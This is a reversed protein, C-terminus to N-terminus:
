SIKQQMKHAIHIQMKNHAKTIAFFMATIFFKGNDQKKKGRVIKDFIECTISQKCCILLFRVLINNTSSFLYKRLSNEKLSQVPHVFIFNSIEM